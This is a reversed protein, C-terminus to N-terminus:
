SLGRRGAASIRQGSMDGLALSWSTVQRSGTIRARDAQIAIVDGPDLHPRAFTILEIQDVAARHEDLTRRAVNRAQEETEVYDHEIRRHRVRGRGVWLPSTPDDDQVHASVPEIENGEEDQTVTSAVTVSNLLSDLDISASIETMACGPGEIFAEVASGPEPQDALTLVGMRDAFFEMGAAQAIRMIDDVPDGGPEGAEYDKALRYTSPTLALTAWPARDELITRVADHAPMGGINIPDKYRARKVEAVADAGRATLSVSGDGNDSVSPWDLYYTGVPIEGWTGDALLISWWVRVANHSLPHLLDHHSLPVLDHNDFTLDCEWRIADGGRCTVSGGVVGPHTADPGGLTAIVAGDPSLIEVRADTVPQRSDLAERYLPSEVLRRWPIPPPAPAITLSLLAVGVTVPVHLRAAMDLPPAQGTGSIAATGTTAAVTIPQAYLARPAIVTVAGVMAPVHVTAPTVTYTFEIGGVTVPVAVTVANLEQVPREWEITLLTADASGNYAFAVTVGFLQRALFTIANGASWGPRSVVSQVLSTVDFTRTAGVLGETPGITPTSAPTANPAPADDVALALVETRTGNINPSGSVITYTLSASVIEVGQPVAVGTFRTLFRHNADGTLENQTPQWAGNHAFWRGDNEATVRQSWLEAV